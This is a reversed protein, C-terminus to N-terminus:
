EALFQKWPKLTRGRAQQFAASGASLVIGSDPKLRDLAFALMKRKADENEPTLVSSFWLAHDSLAVAPERQRRGSGDEWWALVRTDGTVPVVMLNDTNAQVVKDPGRWEADDFSFASWNNKRPS